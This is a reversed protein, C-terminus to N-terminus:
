NDLQMRVCADFIPRYILELEELSFHQGHRQHLKKLIANEREPIRANLEQEQKLDILSKVLSARKEILLLVQEDLEDIQQRISEISKMIGETSYTM